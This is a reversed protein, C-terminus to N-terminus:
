TALSGRVVFYSNSGSRVSTGTTTVTVFYGGEATTLIDMFYSGTAQHQVTGDSTSTTYNTTRSGGPKLIRYTVRTPNVAVGATTGFTSTVRVVDGIDYTTAM